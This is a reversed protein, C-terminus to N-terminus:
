SNNVPVVFFMKCETPDTVKKKKASQPGEADESDSMEMEAEERENLFQERESEVIEQIWLVFLM